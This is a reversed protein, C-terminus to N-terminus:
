PVRQRRPEALDDRAMAVRQEPDLADHVGDAIRPRQDDVAHLPKEVIRDPEIL